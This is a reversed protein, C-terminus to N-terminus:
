ARKKTPRLVKRAKTAKKAASKKGATKKLRTRAALTNGTSRTTKKRPGARAAKKKRTEVNRASRAGPAKSAPMIFEKM